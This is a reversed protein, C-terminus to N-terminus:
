RDVEVSFSSASVFAETISEAVGAAFGNGERATWDVGDFLSPEIQLLTDVRLAVSEGNGIEAAIEASFSLVDNVALDFAVGDEPLRIADGSRSDFVRGRMEVGVVDLGVSGLRGRALDCGGAAAGECFDTSVASEDIRVRMETDAAVVLTAEGGTGGNLEAAIEEYDILAGDDRHCHGGHCLSYGPPPSAPDFGVVNNDSAAFLSVDGLRVVIESLAVRYDNSTRIRGIEDFRSSENVLMVTTRVSAEGWPNGDGIACGSALAAAVASPLLLRWM